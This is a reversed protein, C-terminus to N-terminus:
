TESKSSKMLNVSFEFDKECEICEMSPRRSAQHHRLLTHIFKAFTM